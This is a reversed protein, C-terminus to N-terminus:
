NEKPPPLDGSEATDILTEIAWNVVRVVEATELGYERTLWFWSRHSLLHRLVIAIARADDAPASPMQRAIFDTIQKTREVRDADRGVDVLPMQAFAESIGGLQDFIAANTRVARLLDDRTELEPARPGGLAQAQNEMAKGLADLLDERTAFHNYVTRLSVGARGAVEKMSFDLHHRETVLEACADVITQRALERQRTRLDSM